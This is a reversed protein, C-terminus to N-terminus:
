NGDDFQFEALLERFALAILQGNEDKAVVQRAEDEVRKIRCPGRRPSIISDGPNLWPLDEARIELGHDLLDDPHVEGALGFLDDPAQSWSRGSPQDLREGPAIVEVEPQPDAPPPSAVTASPPTAVPVEPTPAPAPVEPQVFAAVPSDEVQPISEVEALAPEGMLFRRLDEGYEQVETEGDLDVALELAFPKRPSRRLYAAAPPALSDPWCSLLVSSGLQGAHEWAVQAAVGGEQLAGDLLVQLTGGPLERIWSRGSVHFLVLQEPVTRGPGKGRRRLAM